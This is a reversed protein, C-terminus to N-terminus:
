HFSLRPFLGAGKKMYLMSDEFRIQARIKEATQPLFPEVLNTITSVIYGANKITREFELGKKLVWPKRDNIYKDAFSILEWVSGLAENLRFDEM